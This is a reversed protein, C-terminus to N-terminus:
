LAKINTPSMVPELELLTDMHCSIIQQKNGFRKRLTDIAETYNATTIKLGAMQQGHLVRWCLVLIISNTLLLYSPTQTFLQSLLVEFTKGSQSTEM